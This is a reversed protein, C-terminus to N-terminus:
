EKTKLARIAIHVAQIINMSLDNPIPTGDIRKYWKANHPITKWQEFGLFVATWAQRAAEELADNRATAIQLKLEAVDGADLMRLERLTEIQGKLQEVEEREDALLEKYWNIIIDRHDLADRCDKLLDSVAQHNALEPNFLGGSHLYDTIRAVENSM